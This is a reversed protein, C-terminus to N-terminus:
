TTYIQTTKIFQHGLLEQIFRIDTGNELLHTAFSPRLTHVTAHKRVKTVAIAHELIDQVSRTSYQRASDIDRIRLGVLKSVRLGDSDIKLLIARHKINSPPEFIAKVEAMIFVHPLPHNRRMPYLGDRALCRGYVERSFLIRTGILMRRFLQSIGTGNIRELLYKEVFGKMVQDPLLGTNRFFTRVAGSDSRITAPSYRKLETKDSFVAYAGM